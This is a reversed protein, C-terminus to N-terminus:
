EISKITGIALLLWGILFLVGGIPTVAGWTRVKTLALLYLSGSFIMIGLAFAYGSFKLFSHDSRFLLVGTMALAFTHYFQYEVGTHFIKLLEEDLHRKLAHAGFAGFAVALLGSVSSLFLFCKAM